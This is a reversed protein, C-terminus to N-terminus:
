CDAIEKEAEGSKIKKIFDRFFYDVNENIGTPCKFQCPDWEPHHVERFYFSRLMAYIGDETCSFKHSFERWCTERSDIIGNVHFELIGDGELTLYGDVKVRPIVHNNHYDCSYVHIKKGFCRRLSLRRLYEYQILSSAERAEQALEILKPLRILEEVSMQTIEKEKTKKETREEENMEKATMKKEMRKEEKIIDQQLGHHEKSSSCFRTVYHIIDSNVYCTLLILGNDFLIRTPKDFM